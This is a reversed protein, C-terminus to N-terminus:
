IVTFLDTMIPIITVNRKLILLFWTMEVFAVCIIEVNKINKLPCEDTRSERLEDSNHKFSKCWAPQSSVELNLSFDEHTQTLVLM